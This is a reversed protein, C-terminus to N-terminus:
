KNQGSESCFLESEDRYPKCDGESQKCFLPIREVDDGFAEKMEKLEEDATQEANREKPVFYHQKKPKKRNMSVTRGKKCFTEVM